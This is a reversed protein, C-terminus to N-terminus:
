PEAAEPEMTLKYVWSFDEMHFFDSFVEDAAGLPLYQGLTHSVKIEFDASFPLVNARISNELERLFFDGLDLMFGFLIVLSPNLLNVENAIAIGILEAAKKVYHATLQDHEQLAQGLMKATLKVGKEHLPQLRSYTGNDMAREIERVIVPFSAYAELCESKGCYCMRQHEGHANVVTHGIEGAVGTSGSLVKGNVCFSSGIGSSLEVCIFNDCGVAQGYRKESFAPLTVPSFLRVPRSLLREIEPMLEHSIWDLTNYYSSILSDTQIYAPYNYLPECLAIGSIVSGPYERILHEINAAIEGALENRGRKLDFPLKEVKLIEGDLQLVSYSIEEISLSALLTLFHAKNIELLVRKRGSKNSYKGSEVVYEMDVLEKVIATVIAPQFNTVEALETRSVPQFHNIMNLILYKRYDKYSETANM